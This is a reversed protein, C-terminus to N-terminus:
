IVKLLEDCNKDTKKLKCHCSQPKGGDALCVPCAAPAAAWGRWSDCAWTLGDWFSVNTNLEYLRIRAHMSYVHSSCLKTTFWTVTYLVTHMLLLVLRLLVSYDWEVPQLASSNSRLVILMGNPWVKWFHNLTCRSRFHSTTHINAHKEWPSSGNCWSQLDELHQSATTHRQGPWATSTCHCFSHMIKM